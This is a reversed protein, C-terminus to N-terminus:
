PTPSVADDSAPSSMEAPARRSSGSSQTEVGVKTFGGSKLADAVDIFSQFPITKDARIIFNTEKPLDKLRQELETKGLPNGEFHIIGGAAIEITTEKQKEVKAASATPLAIPIRGVAVFTATTLVMTLLVLMIDVFPIVNLSEFPKDDM